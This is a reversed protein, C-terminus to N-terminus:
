TRRELDEVKEARRQAKDEQQAARQDEQEAVRDAERQAEEKRAEAKAQEREARAEDERLEDKAEGKREEDRGEQKLSDAGALDGAAQKIRGTAKDTIGVPSEKKPNRREGVGEWVGHIEDRRAHGHECAARM